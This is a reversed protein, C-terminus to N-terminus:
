KIITEPGGEFENTYYVQHVTLMQFAELLTKLLAIFTVPELDRRGYLYCGFFHCHYSIGKIFRIVM